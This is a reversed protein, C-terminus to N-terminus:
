ASNPVNVPVDERVTAAARALNEVNQKDRVQKSILTIYSSLEDDLARLTQRMIVLRVLITQPNNIDLEPLQPRTQSM